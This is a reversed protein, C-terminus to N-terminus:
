EREIDEQQCGLSTRIEDSSLSITLTRRVRRVQEEQLRNSFKFYTSLIVLDLANFLLTLFAYLSNFAIELRLKKLDEEQM